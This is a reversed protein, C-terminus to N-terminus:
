SKFSIGSQQGAIINWNKGFSLFYMVSLTSDDKFVGSKIVGSFSVGSSQKKLLNQM